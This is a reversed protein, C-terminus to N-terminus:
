FHPDVILLSSPGSVNETASNVRSSSSITIINFVLHLRPHPAPLPHGEGRCGGPETAIRPPQSVRREAGTLLNDNASIVSTGSTREGLDDQLKLVGLHGQAKKLSFDM